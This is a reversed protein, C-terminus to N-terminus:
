GNKKRGRKRSMFVEPIEEKVIERIKKELLEDFEAVLKRRIKNHKIVGRSAELEEKETVGKEQQKEILHWIRINEIGIKDILSGLTEM